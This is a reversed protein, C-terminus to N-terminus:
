SPSQPLANSFAILAQLLLLSSALKGIMKLQKKKKVLLVFICILCIVSETFLQICKRSLESMNIHLIYSFILLIYMLPALM